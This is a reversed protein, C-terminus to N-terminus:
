NVPDNMDAQIEAPTLARNYVRVEDITGPLVRGVSQEVLGCRDRRRRSRGACRRARSRSETSSCDCRRGTTPGRSTRGCTAALATGEAVRNTGAVLVNAEPRGRWNRAYLNYIDVGAGEKIIVDRVGTTSSPLIWAELTMGTTLSLLSTANVTMWGNGGNFTLAGGFRGLPTWAAGSIAGTHGNGSADGVSTGAGENFRLGRDVRGGRHVSLSASPSTTPTPTGAADQCRVFYGYSGGDALGVVRHLARDGPPRSHM